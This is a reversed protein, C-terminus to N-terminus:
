LALLPTEMLYLAYPFYSLDLKGSDNMEKSIAEWARDVHSKRMYSPHSRDYMCPHQEVLRCIKANTAHLEPTITKTTLASGLLYSNMKSNSYSISNNNNNKNKNKGISGTSRRTNM